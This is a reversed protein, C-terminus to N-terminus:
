VVEPKLRLGTVLKGDAIRNEGFGLATLRYRFTVHGVKRNIGWTDAWFKYRIYLPGAPESGNQDMVCCHEVFQAVQDAELRWKKGAETSSAPMTFGHVRARKYANLVMWLIGPLEGVLKEKLAPDCNNLEPKFQRNFPVVLARRFLADSFDRTHPMHNTGFWCTSYPRMDFPDKHKHDVTTLEGSTIGKLAEDDIVEGQRLESVINALKGHLHARHFSNGFNSPQVGVVNDLGCLQELVYLFVSKGNAGGGVLIIFREHRCHTMLTYGMMELLAWAKDDADPDGAFVELLFQTFGTITLGGM